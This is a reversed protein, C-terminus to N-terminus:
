SIPSARLKLSGPSYGRRTLRGNNAPSSIVSLLIARNIPIRIHDTADYFSPDGDLDYRYWEMLSGGNNAIHSTSGSADQYYDNNTM